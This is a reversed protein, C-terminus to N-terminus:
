DKDNDGAEHDSGTATGTGPMHQTSNDSPSVEVLLQASFPKVDSRPDTQM